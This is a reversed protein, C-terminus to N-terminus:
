LASLNYVGEQNQSLMVMVLGHRRCYRDLEQLLLALSANALWHLLTPLAPTSHANWTQSPWQPGQSSDALQVRTTAATCHQTPTPQIQQPVLALPYGVQPGCVWLSCEQMAMSLAGFARSGRVRCQFYLYYQLHAQIYTSCLGIPSMIHDQQPTRRATM